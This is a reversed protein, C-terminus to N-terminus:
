VYMFVTRDKAARRATVSTAAAQPASVAVVVPGSGLVWVVGV